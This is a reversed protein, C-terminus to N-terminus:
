LLIEHNVIDFAAILDLLALITVEGVDMADFVDSAVNLTATKTSHHERYASQQPVLLHNQQLYAILQRCVLREVLKSLFTLNSVPRYSSTCDIDLGPKKLIPTIIAVKECEPLVGSSLSSNCVLCLFPLIDSLSTM